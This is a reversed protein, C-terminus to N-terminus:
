QGLQSSEEPNIRKMKYKDCLTPEVGDTKHILKHLSADADTPKKSTSKLKTNLKIIQEGEETINM